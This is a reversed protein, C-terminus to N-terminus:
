FFDEFEKFGVTRCLADDNMSLFFPRRQWHHHYFRKQEDPLAKTRSWAVMPLGHFKAGSKLIMDRKM